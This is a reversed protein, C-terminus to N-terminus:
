RFTARIAGSLGGGSLRGGGQGATRSGVYTASVSVAGRAYTLGAQWDWKGTDSGGEHGVAIAASLPTEGIALIAGAGCYLNQQAGHQDPTYAIQLELTAPGITRGATGQLEVYDVDHGGPYLYGYLTASYDIGSTQGQYGGYVDLEVKAGAYNAITSAWSGAFLGSRFAADIGGQLAPRRDSLSIGRFRYDSVVGINASLDINPAEDPLPDAQAMGGM